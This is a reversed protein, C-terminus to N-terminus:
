IGNAVTLRSALGSEMCLLTCLFSGPQPLGNRCHMVLLEDLTKGSLLDAIYHCGGNM